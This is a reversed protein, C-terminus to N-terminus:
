IVVIHLFYISRLNTNMKLTLIQFSINSNGTAICLSPLIKLNNCYYISSFYKIKENM